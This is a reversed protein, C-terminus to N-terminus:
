SNPNLVPYSEMLLKQYWVGTLVTENLKYYSGRVCTGGCEPNSRLRARLPLEHGRCCPPRAPPVPWTSGRAFLSESLLLMGEGLGSARARWWTNCLLDKEKRMVAQVNLNVCNNVCYHVCSLLWTVGIKLRKLRERSDWQTVQQEGRQLLDHM